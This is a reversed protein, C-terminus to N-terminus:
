NPLSGPRGCYWGQFYDCSISILLKFQNETEVGEAIVKLNLTHALAIINQVISLGEKSAEMESVFSKDVKIFDIPLKQLYSFSSFGTGFDDLSFKVGLKRLTDMNNIVHTRDELFVGETVELTILNLPFM